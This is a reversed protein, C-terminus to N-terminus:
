EADKWIDCFPTPSIGVGNKKIGFDSQFLLQFSMSLLVPSNWPAAMGESEAEVDRAM